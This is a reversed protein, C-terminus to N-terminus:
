AIDNSRRAKADLVMQGLVDLLGYLTTVLGWSLLGAIVLGFGVMFNKVTSPSHEVFKIHQASDWASMVYSYASPSATYTLAGLVQIVWAIILVVASGILANRISKLM